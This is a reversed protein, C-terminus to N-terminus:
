PSAPRVSYLEYMATGDNGNITSLLQLQWNRESATAFFNDRNDPFAGTGAAPLVFLATGSALLNRYVVDLGADLPGTFHPWYDLVQREGNLLASIISGSGWDTTVVPMNEQRSIEVTLATTAPDWRAGPTNAFGQLNRLDVRLSSVCVAVVVLASLAMLLPQRRSDAFPQGLSIALLLLWLPALTALHHPGTAQRTAFIGTLVVMIFIAFFATMQWDISRYYRAALGAAALLALTLIQLHPTAIAVTDLATTTVAYVGTGSLTYRALSWVENWRQQWDFNGIESELPVNTRMYTLLGTGLLVTVAAMAGSFKSHQRCFDILQRPYVVVLALAVAPCLWLFNLKDFVGAVVVALATVLYKPERTKIWLVASLLLLSRFLMMLTTPGWDLRTHFLTSPEVAAMAVFALAVPRSFAHLAVRYNFWLTLAGILVVPWRVSVASVGFLQFVPYYLWAKLAGIYPMLMVPLSGFSIHKFIGNPGGLAADVFLLEDYYLGPTAINWGAILLFASLAVLLAAGISVRKLASVTM